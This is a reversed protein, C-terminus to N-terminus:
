KQQALQARLRRIEEQLQRSKKTLERMREVDNETPKKARRTKTQTRKAEGDVVLVKYRKQHEAQKLAMERRKLDRHALEVEVRKRDVEVARLKGRRTDLKMAAVSFGTAEDPTSFLDSASDCSVLVVAVLLTSCPAAFWQRLLPRM